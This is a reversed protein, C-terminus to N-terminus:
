KFISEYDGRLKEPFAKLGGGGLAEALYAMRENMIGREDM